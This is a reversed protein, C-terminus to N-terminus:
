MGKKEMAKTFALEVDNLVDSVKVGTGAYLQTVSSLCSLYTIIGQEKQSTYSVNQSTYSVNQSTYSVNPKTDQQIPKVINTVIGNATRQSVEVNVIEGIKFKECVNSKSNYEYATNEGEFTILHVYMQGYQTSYNRIDQTVSKVKKEM